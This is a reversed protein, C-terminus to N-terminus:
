KMEEFIKLLSDSNQKEVTGTILSADGLLFYKLFQYFHSIVQFFVHLM